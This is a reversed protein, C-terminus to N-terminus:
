RPQVLMLVMGDGDTDSELAKGIVAGFAKRRNKAATARGREESTTLLDGAKVPGTIKVYVRGDLAIPHTGDLGKQSLTLGTNVGNAGSVVGVVRQDYARACLVVEGIRGEDMVVVDGPELTESSNFRESIDCGGLMDMCRVQTHGDHQVAFVLSSPGGSALYEPSFLAFRDDHSRDMLNMTWVTNSGEDRVLIVNDLDSTEPEVIIKWNNDNRIRMVGEQMDLAYNPNTTGIGVNGGDYYLEGGSNKSWYGNQAFRAYEAVPVSGIPSTGMDMFGATGVNVAVRLYYQTALWDIATIDYASPQSGIMLHVMGLSSTTVDNHVEEYVTVGDTSDSLVTFRVALTTEILPMDSTDRLVAQYSFQQAALIGYNLLALLAFARRSRTRQGHVPSWFQLM